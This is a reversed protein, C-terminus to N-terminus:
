KMIYFVRPGINYNINNSIEHVAKFLKNLEKGTFGFVSLGKLEASTIRKVFKEPTTDGKHSNCHGCCIVFRDTHGKSKPVWHDMTAMMNPQKSTFRRGCYFCHTANEKAYRVTGPILHSYNNYLFQEFDFTPVPWRDIKKGMYEKLLNLRTIPDIASIM